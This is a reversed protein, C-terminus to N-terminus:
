VLGLKVIDKEFKAYSRVGLQFKKELKKVDKEIMNTEFQPENFTENIRVMKLNPFLLNALVETTNSSANLIRSM